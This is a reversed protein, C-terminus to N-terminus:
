CIKHKFCDLLEYFWEGDIIFDIEVGVIGLLEGGTLGYQYVMTGAMKPQIKRAISREAEFLPAQRKAVRGARRLEVLSAPHVIVFGADLCDAKYFPSQGKHAIANRESFAQKSFFARWSCLASQERHGRHERHSVFFVAYILSILTM